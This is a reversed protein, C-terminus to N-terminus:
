RLGLLEVARRAAPGGSGRAADLARPVDLGDLLAADVEAAGSASGPRGAAAHLEEVTAAAQELLAPSYEWHEEPRRALCLLRVASPTTSALLQDVLVLNGTSKAMKAGDVSVVGPRLWARAFPVVGTATEALLAEVAHHPYALDAGGLHLDVTGYAGLVMAACQAHWGPRGPGWPSPWVVEDGERGGLWVPTDLPHEKAPDDPEDGFERSLELARAEDVGAREAAAAARAYVTGGVVYAAGLDVLAAALAIVQRVSRRATPEHDPLRVGLASMTVDFAFRQRSALLDYPEGSRRAAALLAEDVDTVNRTLEVKSGTARLVRAALDSWLFTSAHGLHTVDYPTIGCVYMRVPGVTHLPRGGLRLPAPPADPRNM